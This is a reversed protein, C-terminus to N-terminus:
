GLDAAAATSTFARSANQLSAEGRRLLTLSRTAPTVGALRTSPELGKTGMAEDRRGDGVWHAQSHMLM